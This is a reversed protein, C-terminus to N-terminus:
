HDKTITHKTWPTMTPTPPINGLDGIKDIDQQIKALDSELNQHM